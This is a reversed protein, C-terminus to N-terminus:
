VAVSGQLAEKAADVILAQVFATSISKHDGLLLLKKLELDRLGDVFVQMM